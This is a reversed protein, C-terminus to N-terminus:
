SATTSDAGATGDAVDPKPPNQYMEVVFHVTQGFQLFDARIANLVDVVKGSPAMDALLQELAALVQPHKKAAAFAAAIQPWRALVQEGVLLVMKLIAQYTM